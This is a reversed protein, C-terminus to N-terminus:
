LQSVQLSQVPELKAAYRSPLFAGALCVAVAALIIAALLKPEIENPIGGIAYITRDWLQFGFHEFLWNEIWNIRLLFVWGCIIGVFSGLLGVMVSFGCFLEVVDAKSAGVSKLIGIDKSKHSVIMYLVVFVICVTTIGVLAFMIAVMTYEKEMAAVFMRRYDKWSKVTVAKLLDTPKNGTKEEAFKKWLLATKERGAALKVDPRFKIYVASARKDTGAMGCLVQADDFPLYIISGDVRALGSQSTDSYYFIKTNVIDAGARALAGKATLPFCTIALAAKAPESAYSYEGWADRALWLDVGVVCGALAPEYVPEFVKSVNDKNYHLTKGFGTVKGHRVPDIGMIEIGRSRETGDLSVLAYSKIVPSVAEVFDSQELIKMFDEYYPFGVLSETGVICDGVFNHNKQKFETLLGTMITMVVTVIFVCLAVAISALYSIQKKFLYRIILIVKYM